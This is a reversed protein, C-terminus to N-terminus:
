AEIVRILSKGENFADFSLTEIRAFGDVISIEVKAGFETKVKEKGRPMPRVHPQNISVIRDAVSHTRTKFM